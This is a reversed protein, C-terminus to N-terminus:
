KSLRMSLSTRRGDSDGYWTVTGTANSFGLLTAYHYGESLGFKVAQAVVPGPQTSSTLYISGSPEIVSTSDIGVCTVTGGDATNNQASGVISVNAIEGDWLLAECRIESNVEGPTTSGRSRNATFNSFLSVGTENFWSRVFRQKVTDSWAPGTVPRAMGVLTRTADGSKIVVGTTADTAYATTSAELTMTGSNMYAYIYYLTSPTLSTAALTPATSPITEHVGNITLLRGNFRGLSLNGGSLTLRCQGYTIGGVLPSAAARQFNACRWNGGGESVFVAVDGAATQINAGGPLILSTANHTLTLAGTFTCIRVVGSTKTGLGTITTTGTINVYRGTAAGIDTTTSSAIDAGKTSFGDAAGIVSTAGTGGAVIPRAANLDAIIDDITANYKASEIVSNPTATTGAVKSMVGSGNRPM